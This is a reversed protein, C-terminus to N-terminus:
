ERGHYCRWHWKQTKISYHSVRVCGAPIFQVLAYALRSILSKPRLKVAHVVILSSTVSSMQPVLCLQLETM